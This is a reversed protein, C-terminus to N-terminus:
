KYSLRLFRTVPQILEEVIPVVVILDLCEDEHGSEKVNM